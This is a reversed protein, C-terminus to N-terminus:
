MTTSSIDIEQGSISWNVSRSAGRRAYKRWHWTQRTAVGYCFVVDAETEGLVASLFRYLGNVYRQAAAAPDRAARRGIRDPGTLGGRIFGRGIRRDATVIRGFAGTGLEREVRSLDDTTAPSSLWTAEEKELQWFRGGLDGLKGAVREHAEPPGTCLGHVRGGGCRVAFARGVDCDFGDFKPAFIM